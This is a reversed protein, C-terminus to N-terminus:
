AFTGVYQTIEHLPNQGRKIAMTGELWEITCDIATWKGNVLVAEHFRSWAKGNRASELSFPRFVRDKVDQIIFSQGDMFHIDSGIKFLGLDQLQRLHLRDRTQKCADCNKNNPPCYCKM